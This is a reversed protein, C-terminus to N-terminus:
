IHRYSLYCFEDLHLLTPILFFIVFKHPLTRHMDNFHSYPFPPSLLLLFVIFLHLIFLSRSHLACCFFVPPCRQMYHGLITSLNDHIAANLLFLTHILDHDNCLRQLYFFFLPYLYRGLRLHTTYTYRWAQVRKTGPLAGSITAQCRRRSPLKLAVALCLVGQSSLLRAVM